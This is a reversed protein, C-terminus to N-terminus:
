SREKGDEGRMVLYADDEDMIFGLGKGFEIVRNRILETKSNSSESDAVYSMWLIHNLEELTFLM